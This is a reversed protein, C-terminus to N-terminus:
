LLSKSIIANIGQTTERVAVLMSKNYESLVNGKILNMMSSAMDSDEVRSLSATLNLESNSSDNFAQCLNNYDNGTNVRYKILENLAKDINSIAKSADQFTDVTSDKINMRETNVAKLKVTYTVYPNDKIQINLDKDEKLLKIKNFETKDSIEDISNKLEKFEEHALKRDEDTLTDNAAKVAIEKMRYLHKSIDDLAADVTQLMSIGDQTNRGAQSLGRVQAKFSESITIGSADDSARNIRKGSSVKEVVSENKFKQKTIRNFSGLVNANNILM